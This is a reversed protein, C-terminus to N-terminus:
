FEDTFNSSFNGLMIHELVPTVTPSSFSDSGSYQDSSYDNSSAFLMTVTLICGAMAVFFLFIKPGYKDCRSETSEQGQEMEVM